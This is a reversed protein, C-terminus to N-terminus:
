DCSNSSDHNRYEKNRKDICELLQIRRADAQLVKFQFGELQIMEGRKPLHGLSSSIIGAMTDFDNDSFSAQLMENFLEIPTHGKITYRKQEHTKIFMEEDIDFEDEIEGIIQEIIDELTILGSVAGYEDVVIAIHTRNKRFESLLSLLTKSEPVFFTQRLLNYLNFVTTTKTQSLLLDKAHLVGIIEDSTEGTVPFRSHGSETVIDIIQELSTEQSISIVQTKPILIDRVRMPAFSLVSELMHFTDTNIIGQQHSHTLYQNLEDRNKPKPYLWNHIRTFLSSTRKKSMFSWHM